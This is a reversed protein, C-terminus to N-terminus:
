GRTLWLLILLPAARAALTVTGSDRIWLLLPLNTDTTTILTHVGYTRTGLRVEIGFRM